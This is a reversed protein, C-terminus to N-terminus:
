RGRGVEPEGLAVVCANPSGGAVAASVPTAAAAADPCRFGTPLDVLCRESPSALGLSYRAFRWSSGARPVAAVSLRPCPHALTSSRVRRHLLAKLGAAGSRSGSLLPLASRRSPRPASRRSPMPGRHRPVAIPSPFVGFPPADRPLCRAPFSERSRHGCGAQRDCVSSCRFASSPSASTAVGFRARLPAPRALSARVRALTCADPPGLLGPSTRPLPPRSRSAGPCPPYVSDSACRTACSLTVASTGSVHRVGHDAAPHLLGALCQASYVTSAPFFLLSPVLEPSPLGPGLTSAGRKRPAAASLPRASSIDISPRDKSLGLLPTRAPQLGTRCVVSIHRTSRHACSVLVARFQLRRLLICARSDSRCRLKSRRLAPCPHDGCSGHHPVSDLPSVRSPGVVRLGTRCRHLRGTVEVIPASFDTVRLHVLEVPPPGVRSPFALLEPARSEAPSGGASL